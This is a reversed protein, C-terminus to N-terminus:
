ECAAFHAEARMALRGDATEIWLAAAGSGAERTGACLRYGTTDIVPSLARFSFRSLRETENACAELAFSCLQTALLPGHVVLGEYGEENVAYDRDFHIRHSNFTLASYRFLTVTNPFQVRAHTPEPLPEVPKTPAPASGGTAAERFVLDQYEELMLRDGHFYSHAVSVFTLAGSRGSKEEISQIRSRRTIAAGVPLPGHFTLSGGAWMRRPLEIPPLFGGRRPHGDESLGAFPAPTQFFCWHWLAPLAAGLQPARPAGDDLHLSTAIRSVLAPDLTDQSEETKGIWDQLTHRNETLALDEFQPLKIAKRSHRWVYQMRALSAM